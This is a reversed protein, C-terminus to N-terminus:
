RGDPKVELDPYEALVEPPVPEGAAVAKAVIEAHDKAWQEALPRGGNGIENPNLGCVRSTWGFFEGQTMQWFCEKAM